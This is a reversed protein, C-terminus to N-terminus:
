HNSSIPNWAMIIQQNSGNGRMRLNLQEVINKPVEYAEEIFITSINALSLLKTEEDLGTFLIVSGNPFTIRYDSENIKVFPTLKWKSLVEKFLEFVTQRITTGYRRCVLVRIPERCCRIIIKQTISYSKSSGSSGM